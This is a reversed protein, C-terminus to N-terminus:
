AEYVGRCWSYGIVRFEGFSTPLTTETIRKVMTKSELRYKIIAEVSVMKITHQTAFRTLDNMRAMTGDHRMIECIVASPMLGALQALDVSAETQGARVLVGGDMARLPFMHGPMVIDNKTSQPDILVQVTRARDAASIGTTVGSKAEVSVTFATGLPASNNNEAVMLQIGLEDLQKGTMAICILGRAHTAMFNISEPTVFQAPICVDGENERDEDDTIIVPRGARFEEIAEEVTCFTVMRETGIPDAWRLAGNGQSLAQDTNESSKSTKKLNQNSTEAM